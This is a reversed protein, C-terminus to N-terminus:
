RAERFARDGTNVGGRLVQERQGAATIGAEEERAAANAQEVVEDAAQTIAESPSDASVVYEIEKFQLTLQTQVPSGDSHFSVISQPDHNISMSTIVSTKIDFLYENKRGSGSFFKITYHRPSKFFPSSLRRSNIQEGAMIPLMGKEFERIISKVRDAEMKNKPFFNFNFDHTRFEGPGRYVLATHSNTALGMGAALFDGKNAIKAGAAQASGLAGGLIGKLSVDGGAFLNGFGAAASAKLAGGELGQYNQTHSTKLSGPPIYLAISSLTTTGSDVANRSKKSEILVYHQGAKGDITQGLNPPYDLTTIPM